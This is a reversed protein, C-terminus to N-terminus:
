SSYDPNDFQSDLEREAREAAKVKRIKEMREANRIRAWYAKRCNKLGPKRYKGKNKYYPIKVSGDGM